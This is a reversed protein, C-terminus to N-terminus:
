CIARKAIHNRDPFCSYGVSVIWRNMVVHFAEESAFQERRPKAARIEDLAKKANGNQGEPQAHRLLRELAETRTRMSEQGTQSEAASVEISTARKVDTTM